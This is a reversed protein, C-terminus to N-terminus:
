HPDYSNEYLYQLGRMELHDEMGVTNSTANSVNQYLFLIEGDGTHTPYAQPDLLIAQFTERQSSVGWHACDKFEIIWRHNLTDNYSYIDGYGSSSPDLDDWFPALLRKPGGVLPIPGNDGFRYTSFGLELFGNSCIGISAYDIGYYKFNFPLAKTVTDADEDTIESIITGPGPPAIEFWDFVPAHGTSTDTDDYIYYGYADPGIISDVSGVTVSFNDIWTGGGTDEISLTFDIVHDSPCFPSISFVFPSLGLSSDGPYIDGFHATADIISVFTDDSTLEASVNHASSLGNNKIITSLLITEGNEPSGNNNALSDNITHGSYTLYAASDIVPIKVEYPHINKGTVTLDMEGPILNDFYFTIEGTSSTYGYEYVVTDLVICVQAYGLPVSNLNVTVHLSESGVYLSSAHIVEVRQPIATWINMEPDGLGMFGRYESANGYLSYVNARGGECAEGFTRKGEEFIADFFGKCVASRWDAHGVVTTTTAFYGSGGRPASVSGTLLWKEATAPTAGTGITRCTISLVIPLKAGNQTADPNVNFPSWWYDVGQGRYLVFARGNNVAQVVDNANNGAARSLTDITNYEAQLMLNKAHNIDSWYISDDHPDYDERVILCANTMWLSDEMYPTREYLLIKNVVNEAEGTNHVTLRGCLIENHLDGEIDTYYNDSYPSSQGWAIYNPAGVLLLFEPQIQWTNYANVIYNKIQSSNNPIESPIRAIKTRIGKKHKWEALPQIADYFNDHTIILYRAGIEQAICLSFIFSFLIVIRHMM